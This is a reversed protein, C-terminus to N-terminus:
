MGFFSYDVIFQGTYQVKLRVMCYILWLCIYAYKLMFIRRGFAILFLPLAICTFYDFIMAIRFLITISYGINNFLMTLLLFFCSYYAIKAENETYKKKYLGYMLGLIPMGYLFFNRILMMGTSAHNEISGDVFISNAYDKEYVSFLTLIDFFFYYISFVGVAIIIMQICLNRIVHANFNRPKRILYPFLLVLVSSHFLSGIFVGLAYLYRKRDQRLLYPFFALSIAVAIEQRMTTLPAFVMLSAFYIVTTMWLNSSIRYFFVAICLYTIVSIVFFFLLHSGPSFVSAVKAIFAYGWETRSDYSFVDFLFDWDFSSLVYYRDIYMSTDRGVNEGRFATMLCIPTLAMFLYIKRKVKLSFDRECFIIGLFISWMVLMIYTIM